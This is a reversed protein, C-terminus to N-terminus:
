DCETAVGEGNTTAGSAGGGLGTAAAAASSPSSSSTASTTTTTSTAHRYRGHRVKWGWWRGHIIRGHGHAKAVIRSRLRRDCPVGPRTLTLTLALTLPTLALTM